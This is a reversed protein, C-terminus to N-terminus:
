VSSDKYSHRTTWTSTANTLVRGCCLSSWVRGNSDSTLVSIDCLNIAASSWADIVNDGNQDVYKVDGPQVEYGTIVPYGSAIDATTLFGNAQLGYTVGVPRGTLRLWDYEVRQEDM